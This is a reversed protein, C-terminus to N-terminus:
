RVIPGSKIRQYPLRNEECAIRAISQMRCPMTRSGDTQHRRVDIEYAEGFGSIKVIRQRPRSILQQKQADPANGQSLTRVDNHAVFIIPLIWERSQAGSEFKELHSEVGYRQLACDITGRELSQALQFRSCPAFLFRRRAEISGADCVFMALGERCRHM